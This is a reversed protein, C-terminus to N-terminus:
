IEIKKERKTLKSKPENKKEHTRKLREKYKENEFEKFESYVEECQYILMKIQFIM